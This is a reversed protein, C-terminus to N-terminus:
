ETETTWDISDFAKLNIQITRNIEEFSPRERRTSRQSTYDGANNTRPTDTNSFVTIMKTAITVKRFLSSKSRGFFLAEAQDM